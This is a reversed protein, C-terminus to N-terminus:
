AEPEKEEKLPADKPEEHDDEKETEDVDEDDDAETDDDTPIEDDAEDEIDVTFHNFEELTIQSRQNDAMPNLYKEIIELLLAQYHSNTESESWTADKLLKMRAQIFGKIEGLASAKKCKKADTMPQKPYLRDRWKICKKEWGEKNLKIQFKPTTLIITDREVPTSNYGKPLPEADWFAEYYVNYVKDINKSDIKAETSARLKNFIFTRQYQEAGKPGKKEDDSSEIEEKKADASEACKKSIRMILGYPSNYQDVIETVENIKVVVQAPKGNLDMQPGTTM